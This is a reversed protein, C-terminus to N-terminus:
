WFNMQFSFMVSHTQVGKFGVNFNPSPPYSFSPDETNFYKYGVGLSIRQSLQFRLGAYAQWAFVVDNESGRVTTVGDSFGDTDFVVDAGGAGAGVYPTVICHPIPCSLTVNAMFPLNYIRSDASFYGQANDIKAANIGVEFDTALYQNLAYGVAADVRGGTDYEVRGSTPGGFNRVQGDQFFSPGAEARFYPGAGEPFYSSYSRDQAFAGGACFCSVVIVAYIQNKM